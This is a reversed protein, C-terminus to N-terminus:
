RKGWAHKEVEECLVSQLLMDFLQNVDGFASLVM